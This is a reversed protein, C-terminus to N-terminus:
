INPVALYVEIIRPNMSAIRVGGYRNSKSLWFQIIDGEEYELEIESGGPWYEEFQSPRDTVWHILTPLSYECHAFFPTEMEVADAYDLNEWMDASAHLKDGYYLSFDTKHTNSSSISNLYDFSNLAGSVTAFVTPIKDEDASGDYAPWEIRWALCKEAAWFRNTPIYEREIIKPYPYPWEDNEPIGEPLDGGPVGEPLDRDPDNSTKGSITSNPSVHNEYCGTITVCAILLVVFLPDIKKM